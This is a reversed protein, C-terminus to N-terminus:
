GCSCANVPDRAQEAQWSVSAVASARASQRTGCGGCGEVLGQMGSAWCRRAPAPPSLACSTARSRRASPPWRGGFSWSSPTSRCPTLLLSSSCHRVNGGAQWAAAHRSMKRRGSCKSGVLRRGGRPVRRQVARAGAYGCHGAGAARRQDADAPQFATYPSATRRTPSIACPELQCARCGGHMSPNYQHSTDLRCTHVRSVASSFGGSGEGGSAAGGCGRM